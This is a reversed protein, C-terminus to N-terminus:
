SLGNVWHLGNRKYARAQPENGRMSGAYILPFGWVAERM